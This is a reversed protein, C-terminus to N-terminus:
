DLAALGYAAAGLVVGAVLLRVMLDRRRGTFVFALGVLAAAALLATGAWALVITGVKLASSEYCTADFGDELIAARVGEADDCQPSDMAVTALAGAFVAAVLALLVLLVGVARWGGSAKTDDRTDRPPPPPPPQAPEAPPTTGSAEM